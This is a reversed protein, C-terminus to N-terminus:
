KCYPAKLCQTAATHGRMEKGKLPEWTKAIIKTLVIDDSGISIIALVIFILGWNYDVQIIM